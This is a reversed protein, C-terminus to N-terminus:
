KPVKMYDNLLWNAIEGFIPAASSEAWEVNKPKNLKVLMVFRADEEPAFGAFSGIFSNEEYGGDSKPVQATGTKGAVKYGEVKAPKGHGNEVVSVLMGSVKKATEASMVDVTDNNEYKKEDEGTIVKELLHPKILKGKNAIAQYAQVIQIPTASIGQGFSITARNVDKWTRAPRVQGPSEGSLDIGTKTNFGIKTIFQSLIDNGQKNAIWVMGINDSNELIQTVTEFGYSKDLANHIEHGDIKIMNSFGGEETTPKSDPQLLNSEIASATVIPKFISGPEWNLSVSPNLFVGQDESKIENYKNPDFSPSSTMALIGGTKPDMIIISGGEAGYREIGEKLKKEAMYQISRDITLVIDAGTKGPENEEVKIIRGLNDKVGMVKGGEGKLLGDYFGELGYKGNGTSDVFGLVHSLFEREPYVRSYQGDLFVGRLKFEVIKDAEEKTLRKKLPPLYQKNNNIKNFIEDEKLGTVSALKKATDSKDKINKPIVNLDYLELDSAIPFLGAKKQDILDTSENDKIYIEGRKAPQNIKTYYQKEAMKRYHGTDLVGREFLRFLLSSALLFIVFSLYKVRRDTSREQNPSAIM